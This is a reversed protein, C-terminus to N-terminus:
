PRARSAGPWALAHLSSSSLHEAMHGSALRNDGAELAGLIEMHEDISALVRSPGYDSHHHLFGRLQIQRKVADLLYRNGSCRALQEHFDSNMEYFEVARFDRWPRQRFAMHRKRTEKAWEEDLKFTDQLFVAPEIVRRFKYSESQAGQSNILPRFTWGNGAKREALGLDALKRLVRGVTPPAAAFMRCIQQLSCDAPLAGDNRAQAIATLLQRDLEERASLAEAVPAAVVPEVLVYGRNARAELSGQAALLKLAGRVPTRSVGFAECLEHEILHHGRGAGQEKLLRLIRAALEVQLRSPAAPGDTPPPTKAVKAKAKAVM